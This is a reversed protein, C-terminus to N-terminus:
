ANELRLTVCYRVTGAPGKEVTFSYGDWGKEEHHCRKVKQIGYTPGGLECVLHKGTGPELFFRAEFMPVSDKSGVEFNFDEEGFQQLQRLLSPWRYSICVQRAAEGPEIRPLFYIVVEKYLPNNEALLYVLDKGSKDIVKFDIDDLYDVRQAYETARSGTPWFHVHQEPARIDYERYVYASFDREILYTVRVKDFSKVPMLAPPTLQDRIRSSARMMGQLAKFAKTSHEDRIRLADDRAREAEDKAREAEEKARLAEQKAQEAEDRATQAQMNAGQAQDRASEAEKKARDAEEKGRTAEQTRKESVIVLVVLVVSAIPLAILLVAFGVKPELRPPSGNVISGMELIKEALELWKVEYFVAILSIIFFVTVVVVKLPRDKLWDIHPLEM